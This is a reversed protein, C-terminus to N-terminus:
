RLGAAEVPERIAPPQYAARDCLMARRLMRRRANEIGRVTDTQLAARDTKPLIEVADSLASQM